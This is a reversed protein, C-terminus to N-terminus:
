LNRIPNPRVNAAFEAVISTDSIEYGGYRAENVEIYLEKHYAPDITDTM